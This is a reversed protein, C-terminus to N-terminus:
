HWAFRGFEVSHTGIDVPTRVVLRLGQITLLTSYQGALHHTM